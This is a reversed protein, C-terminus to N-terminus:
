KLGLGTVQGTVIKEVDSDCRAVGARGGVALVANLFARQEPNLRGTGSKDEVATPVPIWTGVMEQTVMMKSWGFSDSMGPIGPKIPRPDLITISGSPCFFMESKDHKRIKSGVWGLGVFMRFLRAGFKSATIITQRNQNAPTM